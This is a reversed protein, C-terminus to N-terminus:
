LVSKHLARDSIESTGLSRVYVTCVIYEPAHIQRSIMRTVCGNPQSWNPVVINAFTSIIHIPVVYVCLCDSSISSRADYAM